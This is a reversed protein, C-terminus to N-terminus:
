NQQGNYYSKYWDIFQKLGEDISTSPKFGIREELASIDAYTRFVDGKQMPLYEKNATIGIHKELTNIFAMLKVPKNNGINFLRYPKEMEEKTDFPLDILKEIAKVIDDVFTFDRELDGNNYVQITENNMIKRTFSFYAMDPRGYPGYVTFFRLGTVPIKYLQAYSHAMMENAKKTAAYLSVPENCPAQTSFPISESNGYVSSSSAYILHQVPHQRCAELINIFGILNSDIYKYPHEISYRVGAQAALNIVVEFKHTAFEKDLKEKDCIDIRKFTFNPYNSLQEIRDNKLQTSYYDNVSDIGIVNFGSTCLRQCLHFGIFGAAGTVLIKSEKNISM